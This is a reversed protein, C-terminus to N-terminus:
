RVVSCCVRVCGQMFYAHKLLMQIWFASDVNYNMFSSASRGLAYSFVDLWHNLCSKKKKKQDFLISTFLYFDCEIGDQVFVSIYTLEQWHMVLHAIYVKPKSHTEIAVSDISYCDTCHLTRAIFRCFEATKINIIIYM